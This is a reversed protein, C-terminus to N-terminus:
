APVVPRGFLYGQGTHVGLEQAAQWQAETEIGEACISAGVEEAWTMVARVAAHFYPSDLHQVLSVDVKVVEPRLRLVRDLNSYGTGWDDVAIRAGRARLEEMLAVVAPEDEVDTYETIELIIGSLNAPLVERVQPSLLAPLSVNVSLVRGPARHEFAGRLALAELEAGDGNRHAEAFVETPCRDGFRSLAEVAIERRTGLDVIPQLAIRPVPLPQRRLADVQHVARDNAVRSMAWTLVAVVLLVAATGWGPSGFLSM